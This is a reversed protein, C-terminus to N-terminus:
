YRPNPFSTKLYLFCLGYLFHNRFTVVHFNFTKQEGLFVMHLTIVSHSFLNAIHIVLLLGPDLVYLSNQMCNLLPLHCLLFIIQKM